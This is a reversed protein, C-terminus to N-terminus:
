KTEHMQLLVSTMHGEKCDVIQVFPKSYDLLALTATMMLSLKAKTLATDDEQSWLINENAGIDQEYIM